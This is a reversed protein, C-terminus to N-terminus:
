AGSMAMDDIALTLGAASGPLWELDDGVFAVHQLMRQISSAITVERVPEALAGNRIMLGEAGVSFDGSVANVGSHVGSVAQVLLGHDIRSIIESETLDGPDIALARAGVRPTTRYGGRVASGTSSAGALRASRTDYLYGLLKGGEILGNRRCALGEADAQSAGWALSNTPDDVLTLNAVAVEEGLRNAFLSRGKFVEDGSLTGALIGLLMSTIRRELIVTLRSSPPKKAGLLRTARDVADSAAKTADLDSVSRGATYGYGTQTDDGEGAVAYVSVFCSTRRSTAEIGTSSAIATERMGDSYDSHVVQRIRPDGARARREVELALDVKAETPTSVLDERWLDLGAPEVGDPVALGAHEDVTAFRANDRAETLAEAASAEDLAAVWAFGVRGESVVRVGLGASEASSLSEIDNEFVRIATERGRAVYAELQEGVTARAVVARALEILEAM